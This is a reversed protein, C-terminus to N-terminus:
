QFLDHKEKYGCSFLVFILLLCLHLSEFFAVKGEDNRPQTKETAQAKKVKVKSKKKQTKDKSKANGIERDNGSSGSRVFAFDKKLLARSM